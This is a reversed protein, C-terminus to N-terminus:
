AAATENEESRIRKKLESRSVKGSSTAPFDDVPYFKKPVAYSSVNNNVAVKLSTELQKTWEVGEALILFAAPAEFLLDDPAGVVAASVVEPCSALVQEVELPSVLHGSTNIVDDARGEFRLSGDPDRSVLDGTDFLGDPRKAATEAPMNYYEKFGSSFGSKLYLRCIGTNNEDTCGSNDGTESKLVIETDDVPSGMRGPTLPAGPQNAIRVTGCETQFWTDYVPRGFIRSGWEYVKASLPEGISYIQKLASFDYGAFFADDERMLSRLATPATYWLSVKQGQLIPMWRKAHFMGEYQLSPIGCLVPGLIGYVTGTIWAPHATCWYVDSSSAHLIDRMSRIVADAIGHRHVVPKPTGSTGSTFVIFADDEEDPKEPVINEDLDEEDEDYRCFPLAGTSKKSLSIGHKLTEPFTVSALLKEPDADTILFGADAAKLRVELGGMGLEPFLVCPVAGLKMAGWFFSWVKVTDRASILVRDGKLCGYAKLFAATRNIKKDLAPMDYSVAQLRSDIVTLLTKGAASNRLQEEYLSLLTKHVSM